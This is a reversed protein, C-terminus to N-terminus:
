DKKREYNLAFERTLRHITTVSEEVLLQTIAIEESLGAHNDAAEKKLAIMRVHIGLLTQAIEDQLQHSMKKREEENASLIKRAIDQLQAELLRSERLLEASHEASTKLAAEATKRETIGEQLERNSSALELTRQDLASVVQLLEKNDALAASHTKEIPLIAETFFTEARRNMDDRTPCSGPVALTAIASEHMKAMDLTELGMDAAQVGLGHAVQLSAQPNEELYTRLAELYRM